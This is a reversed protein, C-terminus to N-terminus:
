HLREGQHNTMDINEHAVRAANLAGKVVATPAGVFTYVTRNTSYGCDVDLLSCGDTSRIATSIAEVVDERRGVSFNPVCEVVPDSMGSSM